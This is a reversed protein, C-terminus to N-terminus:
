NKLYLQTPNNRQQNNRSSWPYNPSDGHLYSLGVALSAPIAIAMFLPTRMVHMAMPGLANRELNPYTTYRGGAETTYYRPPGAHGHRRFEIDRYYKPDPWQYYPNINAFHLDWGSSAKIGFMGIELLFEAMPRNM